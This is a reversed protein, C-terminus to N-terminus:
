EMPQSIQLKEFLQDLSLVWAISRSMLELAMLHCDAGRMSGVCDSVVVPRFGRNAAAFVTSYVCTDTNIGAVVVTDVHLTTALLFELDTYQFSDWSKKNAVHLDRDDVLAGVMESQPSGIVRDPEYSTHRHPTQSAGIAAAARIYPLVGRPYPGDLERRRRTVYAHVIPIDMRRAVDLLSATSAIIRAGDAVPVPSQGIEQDLYKRQLDVTVVATRSPDLELQSNMASKFGSRDILQIASVDPTTSDERM